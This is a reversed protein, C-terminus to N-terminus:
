SANTYHKSNMLNELKIKLLRRAENMHWKSTGDTIGLADGIETHKYGDIVFLNFVVATNKPLESVLRMIDKADLNSYAAPPIAVQEAKSEELWSQKKYSISKRCFDICTNMVIRKVWGNFSGQFKYQRIKNFVKFMSENYLSGADDSNYTYRMCVKIMEPYLLKYLQEQCAADGAICGNIINAPCNDLVPKYKTPLGVKVLRLATSYLNSTKKPIL